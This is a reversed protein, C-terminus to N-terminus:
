LFEIKGIKDGGKLCLDLTKGGVKLFFEPVVVSAIIVNSEVLVAYKTYLNRNSWDEKWDM